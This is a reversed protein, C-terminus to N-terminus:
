VVNGFARRSQAPGGRSRAAIPSAAEDNDASGLRRKRNRIRVFDGKTVDGSTGLNATQVTDGTPLNILGGMARRSRLVFRAPSTATQSSDATSSNAAPSNAAVSVAPDILQLPNAASEYCRAIYMDTANVIRDRNIDYPDTISAPMVGTRHAAIALVDQNDVIPM